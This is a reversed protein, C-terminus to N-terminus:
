IVYRKNIKHRIENSIRPASRSRIEVEKWLAHEDCINVFLSQWAWLVDGPDDFVSAIHFPATEMDRRFNHLNLKKYNRTKVYKPPPRKNKLRMTAYVLNHDSIGQPFVGSTNILDKRTTVDDFLISLQVLPCSLIQSWSRKMLFCSISFEM